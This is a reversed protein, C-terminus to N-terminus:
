AARGAKEKQYLAFEQAQARAISPRQLLRDLYAALVPWADLEVLRTLRAWNLVTVLYADAVSFRDLLTERGALQTTLTAFPREVLDHVYTKVAAPTGETLLPYFIAKHLETATFSLWRLMQHRDGGDLGAGPALDAIYALVAVNESLLAGDDARLVPVRAMPNIDRFDADGARLSKRDVAIYRAELGAEYLAIRSAMSCALPLFYLDM